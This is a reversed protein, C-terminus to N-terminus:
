ADKRGGDNSPIRMTFSAGRGPGESEAFLSGGMEQAALACSHLGFGHGKKKTTFGYRFLRSMNERAIGEGNDTVRVSTFGPSDSFLSVTLTREEEATSNLAHGANAVLNMLIQTLKHRDAAVEPVPQYNRVVQIKNRKLGAANITLVEEVVDKMSLPEVLGPVKSWEQQTKVIESIHSTYGSLEKIENLLASREEALHLSLDHLFPLIERGHSDHFLFHPLSDEHQKVLNMVERLDNIRSDKVKRQMVETSINVSNLVNGVNHLVGTAVEAMGIQRATEILKAHTKKLEAEARKRDSIDRMIHVSATIAGEADRIPSTSVHLHAGLNDDYVEADHYKGDALSLVHPCFAPPGSAGHVVQACSAGAMKGPTTGFAAAMAKNVRVIKHSSDIIAILDPVADFTREWEKKARIINEETRKRESIDRAVGVVFTKSDAEGSSLSIEMPFVAGDGRMAPLELIKGMAADPKGTSFYSRLYQPHNKRFEPPMLPELPQGLMEERTRQFMKEGAHNFLTIRGTQDIAIIADRTTNILTQLLNESKRLAEQASELEDIDILRKKSEEMNQIMRTLAEGMRVIEVDGKEEISVNLNGKGIEMAAKVLNDLPKSISGSVVVGQFVAFILAGIAIALILIRTKSAIRAASETFNRLNDQEMRTLSELSTILEQKAIRLSNEQDMVAQPMFDPSFSGSEKMREMHYGENMALYSRLTQNFAAAKERVERERGKAKERNPDNQVIGSYEQLGSQIEGLAELAKIRNAEEGRLTFRLAQVCAEHSSGTIRELLLTHPINDREIRRLAEGLKNVADLGILGVFGTLLVVSFFGIFLRYILKM